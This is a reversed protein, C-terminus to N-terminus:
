SPPTERHAISVSGIECTACPFRRVGARADRAPRKDRGKAGSIGHDRYIEVVQHGMRDAANRLEREQNETNQDSTSVRLYIAARM